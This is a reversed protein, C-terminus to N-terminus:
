SNDTITPPRTRPPAFGPHEALVNYVALVNYLTMQQPRVATWSEQLQGREILHALADRESRNACEEWTTGYQNRITLAYRVAFTKGLGAPGVIAGMARAAILDVVAQETLLLHKTQLVAAGELRLHHPLRDSLAAM